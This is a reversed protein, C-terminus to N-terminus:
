LPMHIYMYFVQGHRRSYYETFCGKPFASNSHRLWKFLHKGHTSRCEQALNISSHRTRAGTELSAKRRLKLSLLYLALRQWVNRTIDQFPSM